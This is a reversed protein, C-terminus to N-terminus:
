QQCFREVLYLKQYFRSNKSFWVPMELQPWYSSAELAEPSMRYQRENLKLNMHSFNRESQASIASIGASQYCDEVIRLSVFLTGRCLGALRILFM